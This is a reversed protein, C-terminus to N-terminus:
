TERFKPSCFYKMKIIWWIKMEFFDFIKTADQQFAGNRLYQM